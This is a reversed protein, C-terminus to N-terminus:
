EKQGNDTNTLGYIYDDDRLECSFMSYKAWLGFQIRTIRCVPWCGYYEIVAYFGFFFENSSLDAFWLVCVSEHSM